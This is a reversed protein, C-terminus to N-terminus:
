RKRGALQEVVREVAEFAKGEPAILDFHAAGELEVLQVDDGKAKAREMFTRSQAIPVVKDLTGHILRVPVRLPLLEIPDVAAYREPLSDPPGGILLPASQMCWSSGRAYARLDGVAALGVVGRIPLADPSAGPADAPLRARAALWLALQGGASHGIAVVRTLDLSHEPAIARLHDAARALDEFTGPWGGGADGIRRYEITWTAVGRATLAAALPTAHAHDYEARWCGGHIVIAVPFPGAGKPLRLEGFQLSDEGYAIREDFPPKPLAAIEEWTMTHPARSAGLAAAAAFIVAFAAGLRRAALTSPLEFM